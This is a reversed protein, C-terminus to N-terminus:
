NTSKKRLDLNQFYYVRIVNTSRYANPAPLQQFINMYGFQINDHTNVHYAFGLFFRNQDFYNTVIEKGFNVHVENNVIFSFTRPAFANKSLPTTLFFNYRARWNFNYGNALEDVDKVKRRFREELRFWQMLRIKSYRTHWQLQQWPRHEPRSIDAHNDAPFHHVYAYGATLKADNTLYYTLGVRAIGQSFNTAFNEKTRLQGEAWFGLRDSLRTQNFYGTWIQNVHATQKQSFADQAILMLVIPFYKRTQKRM